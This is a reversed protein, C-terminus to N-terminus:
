NKVDEKTRREMTNITHNEVAGHYIHHFPKKNPCFPQRFTPLIKGITRCNKASKLILLFKLFHLLILCKESKHKSIGERRINLVSLKRTVNTHIFSFAFALPLPSQCKRFLLNQLFSILPNKLKVMQAHKARTGHNKKNKQEHIHRSSELCATPNEKGRTAPSVAM